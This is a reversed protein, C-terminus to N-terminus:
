HGLYGFQHDGCDLNSESPVTLTYTSEGHVVEYEGAELAPADCYLIRNDLFVSDGGSRTGRDFEVVSSVVLTEGDLEVSCSEHILPGRDSSGIMELALIMELPTEEPLILEESAADARQSREVLCLKARSDDEYIRASTAGLGCATLYILSACLFIVLPFLRFM